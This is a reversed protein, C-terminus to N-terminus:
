SNNLIGTISGWWYWQVVASLEEASAGIMQDLTFPLMITYLSGTGIIGIILAAIILLIAPILFQQLAMFTVQMLLVAITSMILGIVIARYRGLWSEAVWGIVPLFVYLAYHTCDVIIKYMGTVRLEISSYVFWHVGFMLCSMVLVLLTGRPFPRCYHRDTISATTTM